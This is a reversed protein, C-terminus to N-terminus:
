EHITVEEWADERNRQAFADLIDDDEKAWRDVAEDLENTEFEDLDPERGKDLVGRYLHAMYEMEIEPQTMELYRFDTPPLNYKQRFWYQLTKADAM